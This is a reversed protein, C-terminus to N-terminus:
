AKTESLSQFVILARDVLAKAFLDLIMANRSLRKNSDSMLPKIVRQAHQIVKFNSKFRDDIVTANNIDNKLSILMKALVNLAGIRDKGESSKLGINDSTLVLMSYRPDVFDFAPIASAYPNATLEDFAAVSVRERFDRVDANFGAVAKELERLSANRKEEENLMKIEEATFTKTSNRSQEKLGIYYDDVVVDFGSMVALESNLRQKELAIFFVPNLNLLERSYMEVESRMTTDDTLELHLNGDKVFHKKYPDELSSDFARVALPFRLNLSSYAAKDTCVSNATIMM